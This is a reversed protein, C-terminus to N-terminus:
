ARQGMALLTEACPQACSCTKRANCLECSSADRAGEVALADSLSAWDWSRGGDMPAASDALVGAGAGRHAKKPDMRQWISCSM